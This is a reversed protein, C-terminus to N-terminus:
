LYTHQVGYKKSLKQLKPPDDSILAVLQSNRTANSFAPLVAVQSIYGQGVVAYRIKSRAKQTQRKRAHYIEKEEFSGPPCAKLQHM